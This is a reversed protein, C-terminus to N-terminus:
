YDIKSIQLLYLSVLQIAKEQGYDYQVQIIVCFLTLSGIM